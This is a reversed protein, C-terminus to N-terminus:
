TMNWTHMDKRLVHVQKNHVCLSRDENGEMVLSGDVM